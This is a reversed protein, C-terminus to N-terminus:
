PRSERNNRLAACARALEGIHRRLQTIEHQGKNLQQRGSDIITNSDTLDANLQQLTEEIQRSADSHRNAVRQLEDAIVGLGEEGSRSAQIAANLALVGSQEALDKLIEINDALLRSRDSLKRAQLKMAALQDQAGDRNIESTDTANLLQTALQELRQSLKTLHQSQENTNLANHNPQTATNAASSPPPAQPGLSHTSQRRYNLLSRISAIATELRAREPNIFEKPIVIAANADGALLSELGDLFRGISIKEPVEITITQPKQLLAAVLTILAGANFGTAVLSLVM